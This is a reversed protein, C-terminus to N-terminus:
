LFFAQIVMFIAFFAIYCIMGANGFITKTRDKKEIPEVGPQLNFVKKRKILFLIIGVISFIYICISYCGLIMQGQEGASNAYQMFFGGVGTGLMNMLFHIIMNYKINNTKLYIAALFFGLFFAYFFQNFNAHFLGFILASVVVAVGEGYRVLKDCVLKRFLYEEFVPALIVVYLITFILNGNTAATVLGNTVAGGKITSLARTLLLGIINGVVMVGYGMVFYLLIEGVSMKGKERKSYADKQEDNNKMLFFAIPYGIVYMPIMTVAMAVDYNSRILEPAILSAIAQALIQIGLLIVGCVLMKFGVQNFTKKATVQTENSKLMQEEM